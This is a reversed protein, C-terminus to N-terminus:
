SIMLVSVLNKGHDREFVLYDVRRWRWWVCRRHCRDVIHQITKQWQESM